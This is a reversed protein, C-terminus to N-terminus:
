GPGKATENSRMRIAGACSMAGNAGDRDGIVNLAAAGEDCVKACAEREAKTAANWIVRAEDEDCHGIWSSDYWEDFTM